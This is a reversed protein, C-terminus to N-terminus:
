SAERLKVSQKILAIDFGVASAVKIITTLRPQRTTGDLWFYITAPAVGAFEATARVNYKAVEDKLAGFIADGSITQPM